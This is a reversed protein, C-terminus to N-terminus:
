SGARAAETREESVKAGVGTEGLEMVTAGDVGGGKCSGGRRGSGSAEVWVTVVRVGVLGREPLVCDPGAGVTICDETSATGGCTGFWMATDIEEGDPVGGPRGSGAM